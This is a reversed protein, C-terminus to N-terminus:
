SITTTQSLVFNDSINFSSATELSRVRIDGDVDLTTTPNNNNIGVNQSKAVNILTVLFIIFIKKM